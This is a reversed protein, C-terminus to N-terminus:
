RVTDAREGASVARGGLGLIWFLAPSDRFLHDASQPPHIRRPGNVYVVWVNKQLAPKRFGGCYIAVSWLVWCFLGLGVIWTWRAKRFSGANLRNGPRAPGRRQATQDESWISDVSRATRWGPCLNEWYGGARLRQVLRLSRRVFRQSSRSLGSPRRLVVTWVVLIAVGAMTCLFQVRLWATLDSDFM